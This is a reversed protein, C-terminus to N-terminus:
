MPLHFFIQVRGKVLFPHWVWDFLKMSLQGGRKEHHIRTLVRVLNLESGELSGLGIFSLDYQRGSLVTFSSTVFIHVDAQNPDRVYNVFDLETRIHTEECRDCDLFVSLREGVGNQGMVEAPILMLFGLVTLLYVKLM